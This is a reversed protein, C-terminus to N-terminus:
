LFWSLANILRVKEKEYLHYAKSLKDNENRLGEIERAVQIMEERIEDYEKNKDELNSFLEQNLM